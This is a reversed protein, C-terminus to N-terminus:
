LNLIFVPNLNARFFRGPWYDLPSSLVSFFLHKNRRWQFVSLLTHLIWSYKTDKSIIRLSKAVSNKVNKFGPANLTKNRAKVRPSDRSGLESSGKRVYKMKAKYLTLFKATQSLCECVATGEPARNKLFQCQFAFYKQLHLKRVNAATWGSSSQFVHWIRNHCPITTFLQAPGGPSGEQEPSLSLCKPPM